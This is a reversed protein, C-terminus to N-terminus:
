EGASPQQPIIKIEELHLYIELCTKINFLFFKNGNKFVFSDILYVKLM